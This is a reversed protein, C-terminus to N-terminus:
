LELKTGHLRYDGIVKLQHSRVRQPTARLEVSTSVQKTGRVGVRSASRLEVTAPGRSEFLKGVVKRRASM